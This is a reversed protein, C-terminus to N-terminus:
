KAGGGAIVRFRQEPGPPSYLQVARLHSGPAPSFAHKVGPPVVVIQEDKLRYPKSGLTFTGEGEVAALVEWVGDHQHEAVPADGELRGVYAFPSVAAEVDLHAHMKGEAWTLEPAAAGRVVKKTMAPIPPECNVGRAIAFVALGAGTLAYSGRGQTILVDGAELTEGAVTASGKAIAVIREECAVHEIAFPQVSLHVFQAKVPPARDDFSPPAETPAAVTPATPVPSASAAPPAITLPPGIAVDTREHNCAIALLPAILLCRVNM